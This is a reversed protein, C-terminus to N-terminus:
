YKIGAPRRYHRVDSASIRGDAGISWVCWLMEDSTSGTLAPESAPLSRGRPEGPYVKIRSMPWRSGKEDLLVECVQAALPEGGGPIEWAFSRGGL